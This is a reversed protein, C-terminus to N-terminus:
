HTGNCMSRPVSTVNSTGAGVKHEQIRAMLHRHLRYEKGCTKCCFCHPHKRTEIHARRLHVKLEVKRTLSESYKPCRLIPTPKTEPDKLTGPVYVDKWDWDSVMLHLPGASREKVMSAMMRPAVTPLKQIWLELTKVQLLAVANARM